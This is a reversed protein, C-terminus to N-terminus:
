LLSRILGPQVSPCGHSEKVHYSPSTCSILPAQGLCGEGLCPLKERVSAM